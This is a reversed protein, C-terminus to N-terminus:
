PNSRQLSVRSFIMISSKKGQRWWPSVIICHAQNKGLKSYHLWKCNIAHEMKCRLDVTELYLFSSVANYDKGRCRSLLWGVMFLGRPCTSPSSNCTKAFLVPILTNPIAKVLQGDFYKVQQLGIPFLFRDMLESWDCKVSLSICATDNLHRNLLTVGVSGGAPSSLFVHKANDCRLTTASLTIM